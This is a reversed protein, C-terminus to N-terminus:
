THRQSVASVSSLLKIWDVQCPRSWSRRQPRRQRTQCWNWANTRRIRLPMVNRARERSVAAWAVVEGSGIAYGAVVVAASSLTRFIAGPLLAGPLFGRFCRTKRTTELFVKNEPNPNLTLALTLTLTLIITRKHNNRPKRVSPRNDPPKQGRVAQSLVSCNSPSPSGFSRRIFSAAL